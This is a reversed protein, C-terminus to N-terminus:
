GRRPTGSRNALAVWRQIAKVRKRESLFASYLGWLAPGRGLIIRYYPVEESAWRLKYPQRGNSLCVRACNRSRALNLVDWIALSSWQYRQRAEHGVGILYADTVKDGLIALSSIVVEGDRRLESIRGLGRDTMRRAASVIFSEYKPSLHKQCIHRGEWLERHLAVLRHAAQEADEPGVLRGRVGDEEQARRLTRRAAQRNNRSLSVLLEDWPKVEIFLYHTIPLQIRPGNWRQFIGWAAATPSLTQLDIVHWRGLMHRLAHVGAECVEDEWGKRALLDLQDSKGVFLLRRFGCWRELVLPMLGVLFSGDRVTILRLECDEGFSEWWSYLWSWSQFPTSLPLDHYLDEWEEELAKFAQSDELVAVDLQSKLRLHM